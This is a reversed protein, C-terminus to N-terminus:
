KEKAVQLQERLLLNQAELEEVRKIAADGKQEVEVIQKELDKKEGEIINVSLVLADKDSQLIQCAERLKELESLIDEHKRKLIQGEGREKKLTEKMQSVKKKYQELDDVIKDVNDVNALASAVSERALLKPDKNNGHIVIKEIVMVGIHMKRTDVMKETRM